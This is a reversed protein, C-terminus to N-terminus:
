QYSLIGKEVFIHKKAAIFSRAVFATLFTSGSSDASGFASFSGDEHKYSLERQYGTELFKL